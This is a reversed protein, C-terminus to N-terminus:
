RKRNRSIRGYPENEFNVQSRFTHCIDGELIESFKLHWKL